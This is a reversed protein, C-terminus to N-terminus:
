ELGVDYGINGLSRGDKKSVWEGYDVGNLMHPKWEYEDNEKKKAGDLEKAFARNERWERWGNRVIDLIEM